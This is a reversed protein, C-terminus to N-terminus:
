WYPGRYYYPRSYYVPGGYYAYPRPYYAPGYYYNPGYYYPAAAAAAGFALAGAAPGFELAGVEIVWRAEAPALSVLSIAGITAAALALKRMVTEGQKYFAADIEFDAFVNRRLGQLTSIKDVQVSALPLIGFRGSGAGWEPGIAM